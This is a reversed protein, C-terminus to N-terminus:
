SRNSANPAMPLGKLGYVKTRESMLAFLSCTREWSRRLFSLVVIPGTILLWRSNRVWLKFGRLDGM